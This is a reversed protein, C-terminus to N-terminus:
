LVLEQKKLKTKEWFRAITPFFTDQEIISEVGTLFSKDDLRCLKEYYVKLSAESLIKIRFAAELRKIGQKFAKESLSSGTM